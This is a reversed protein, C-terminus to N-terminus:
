ARSQRQRRRAENSALRALAIIVLVLAAVKLATMRDGGHRADEAERRAKEARESDKQYHEREHEAANYRMSQTRRPRYSPTGPGPTRARASGGRAGADSARELDLEQQDYDRRRAEDGLVEYAETVRAFEAHASIGGEPNRDPHLRKSAEYYASKIQKASATHAVGLAEYHRPRGAHAPAAPRTVGSIM